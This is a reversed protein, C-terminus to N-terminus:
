EGQDEQGLPHNRGQIPQPIPHREDLHQPGYDAQLRRVGRGRVVRLRDAPEIVAAAKPPDLIDRKFVGEDRADGQRGEGRLRRGLEGLARDADRVADIGVM